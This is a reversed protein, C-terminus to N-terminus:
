RVVVFMKTVVETGNSFKLLYTGAQLNSVDITKGYSDAQVMGSYLIRGTSIEAIYIDSDNNLATAFSLEISNRTITPSLKVDNSTGMVVNRTPSYESRGDFDVQRLRYYNMGAFPQADTYLYDNTAQTTGNGRMQTLEAYTIGDNSREVGFYDCNSESLTQWQLDVTKNRKIVNFYSLEVPLASGSAVVFPSFGTFNSVSTFSPDGSTYTAVSIPTFSSGNWHGIEPQVAPNFNSGTTGGIWQLKVKANSGGAVSEALDWQYQICKTPDPVAVGNSQLQEVRATFFDTTQGSQAIISAPMYLSSLPGVPFLVTTSALVRRKLGGTTSATSGDASCTCVFNSSSSTISTSNTSLEMIFGNTRIQGSTLILDDPIKFDSLLYAGASNNLTVPITNTISAGNANISQQASGNLTISGNGSGTENIICTACIDLNGKFTIPGPITGSTLLLVSGNQMTFNGDVVLGPFSASSAALRLDGTGTSVITFDGKITRLAGLCNLPSSVSNNWVFHYFNQTLGNLGTNAAIIECTSGTQWTCTPITGSSSTWNHQYRGENEVSVTGTTTITGLTNKLIGKVTLDTGTGDSITLTASSVELTSGADITAQDLNAASTVTVVHPSQITILNAASTPTLSAPIWTANDSSSEWTSSANWNGSAKSRFYDTTSSADFVDFMASTASTLVGSAATLERGTEAVTHTLTAFTALGASPTATVPSGTLTGTSTMSVSTMYNLDRNGNADDASVKVTSMAIGKNVNTADQFFALTSAAVDITNNSSGSNQDQGTAFGSGTNDVSIDSNQIRFVFRQGDITLKLGALDSKLWVKLTYTKTANDAILGLNSIDIAAFTISTAGITGTQVNTGDSLEAGALVASWDAVTNGSAGKNFIMQTIKTDLNDNGPTAGDDTILVDFNLGAAGQTNIISSITAPESGAGASITNTLVATVDFNSSTASTLGSSSATLQRATQAVTHTLTSFSAIGSALSGTVPDGTLTGTSSMQVATAWSKDRNGNADDTSLTVTPSMVANNQVNSANQLYSLKTATVDIENNSAGSNQDQGTAFGSGTNDVTINSNQIRFELNKGDATTKESGFDTKLWVKLIYNKTADDAILGLTAPNIGPFTINLANITGSQTNTGDTLEAGAIVKTWDSVDNGTGQAFVMQTIKTDLADTAPTAGDDKIDIDFNLSAAGSTNILSSISAPETGSGAAITNTGASTAPVTGKFTFDNISFTGGSGSANWGYIRFEIASTVNQFSSGSLSITTGSSTPTGINAVFGDISSRFAFNTPGSGSKQGTYEFSVFDIKYGGNPTITFTFYDNADFSASDWGNANYRDNANSGSIGTGRGIGTVTINTNVSQGTTYPNSTNPNSGTIPNDFISQGWGLFSLATFCVFLLLKMIRM